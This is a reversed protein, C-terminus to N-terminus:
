QVLAICIIVPETEDEVYNYWFNEYVLTYKSTGYKNYSLSIDLVIESSTVDIAPDTVTIGNMYKLTFNSDMVISSVAYLEIGNYKLPTLRKITLDKFDLEYSVTFIKDSISYSIVIYTSEWDLTPNDDKLQIFSVNYANYMKIISNKLGIVYNDMDSPARIDCKNTYLMLTSQISMVDSPNVVVVKKYTFVFDYYLTDTSVMTITASEGCSVKVFMTYIDHYSYGSVPQKVKGYTIKGISSEEMMYIYNGNNVPYGTYDPIDVYLEPKDNQSRSVPKLYTIIYQSDYTDSSSYNRIILKGGDYYM